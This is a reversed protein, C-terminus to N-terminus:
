GNPNVKLAKKNELMITLVMTNNIIVSHIIPDRGDSDVIDLKAGHEILGILNARMVDNKPNQRILNILPTCYYKGKPDYNEM